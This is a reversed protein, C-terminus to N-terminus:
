RVARQTPTAEDLAADTALDLEIVLLELAKAWSDYYPRHPDTVFGGGHAEIDAVNAAGDIRVITGLKGQVYRPARTHGPLVGRDLRSLPFRAGARRELEDITVAGAEVALTTVGTLWHEYYSSAQNQRTRVM